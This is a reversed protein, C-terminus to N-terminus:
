GMSLADLAGSRALAVLGAAGLLSLGALSALLLLLSRLRV